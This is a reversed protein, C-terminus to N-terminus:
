APREISCHSCVSGKPPSYNAKPDVQYSADYRDHHRLWAMPFALDDEDRGKPTLDLFNYAGLLMEVGRAYTSYTHFIGGEEDRYFVSAGPLEEVGLDSVEYNYLMKGKAVEESTASVHHDFNFDTGHSSVWKFRWGMRKRFAEIKPWPARSVVALTVDRANLHVLIGDLHDAVFSCSPCGEEWEPALMFHYVILQNRDEFLDAFAEKGDPGEFVYLKNVRVWPLERRDRSLEDRLRTMVKEKNLLQKRAATWEEVPVIRNRQM